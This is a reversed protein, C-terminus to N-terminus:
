PLGAATIGIRGGEPTGEIAAGVDVAGKGRGGVVPDRRQQPPGEARGM